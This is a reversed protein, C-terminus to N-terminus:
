KSCMMDEMVLDYMTLEEPLPQGHQEADLICELNWCAVTEATNEKKWAGAKCRRLYEAAVWTNDICVTHVISINTQLCIDLAITVFERWESAMM